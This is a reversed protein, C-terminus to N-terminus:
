SRAGATVSLTGTAGTSYSYPAANLAPGALPWAAATTQALAAPALGAVAVIPSLALAIRAPLPLKM